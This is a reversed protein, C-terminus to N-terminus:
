LLLDVSASLGLLPASIGPDTGKDLDVGINQSLEKAEEVEEWQTESFDM